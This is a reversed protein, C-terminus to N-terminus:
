KRSVMGLLGVRDMPLDKRGTLGFLPCAGHSSGAPFKTFIRTFLGATTPQPNSVSAGDRIKSGALPRYSVLLCAQSSAPRLWVAQPRTLSM